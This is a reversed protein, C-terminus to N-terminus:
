ELWHSLDRGTLASLRGIDETYLKVLEKRIDSALPPAKDPRNNWRDVAGWIRARTDASLLQRALQKLSSPRNVLDRILRSRPAGALNKQDDDLPVPEQPSVGIFLHVANIVSEPSSFLDDAFLFLMNKRAFFQLYRDIQASYFGRSVYSHRSWVKGEPWNNRGRALRSEEQVVAEEFSLAEWGRRVNM